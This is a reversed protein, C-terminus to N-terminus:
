ELVSLKGYLLSRVLSAGCIPRWLHSQLLGKGDQRTKLQGPQAPLTWGQGSKKSNSEWRKEQRRKEKEM